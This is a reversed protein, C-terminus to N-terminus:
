PNASKLPIQGAMEVLKAAVASALINKDANSLNLEIEKITKDGQKIRLKLHVINGSVSYVIKPMLSGVPGDNMDDYYVIPPESAEGRTVPHSIERLQERVLTALGLPDNDDEDHCSM